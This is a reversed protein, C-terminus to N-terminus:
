FAQQQKKDAGKGRPAASANPNGVFQEASASALDAEGVAPSQGPTSTTGPAAQQDAAGTDHGRTGTLAAAAHERGAAVHRNLAASRGLSARPADDPAKGDGDGKREGQNDPGTAPSDPKYSGSGPKDAPKDDAGASSSDAGGAAPGDDPVDSRPAQAHESADRDARPIDSVPAHSPRPASEASPGKAPVPASAGPASRPTDQGTHWSTTTGPTIPTSSPSRAAHSSGTVFQVARDAPAPHSHAISPAGIATSLAAGPARQNRPGADNETVAITGGAISLAAAAALGKSGASAALGKGAGVAALLGGGWGGGGGLLTSLLAAAAAAPLPPVIVGLDSRRGHIAHQFSTCGTCSRLHARVRRPRLVRGDRKSILQRVQDCPLERGQQLEMLMVRAEYVSQRAAQESADIAAGVEAYTLDNLERLLLASRQREPLQELDTLLRRMRESVITQDHPGPSESVAEPGADLSDHQRRRRLLTIAENHAIRYLWPKIAMARQDGDLATMAKTFAMQLADRADEDHRLIARCYRYLGQHHREFIVAFAGRDGQAARQALRDDSLLRLAVPRRVGATLGISAQGM